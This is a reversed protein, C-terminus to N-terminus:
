RRSPRWMRRCSRTLPRCPSSRANLPDRAFDFGLVKGADPQDALVQSAPVAHPALFLPARDHTSKQQEPREIPVTRPLQADQVAEPRAGRQPAQQSRVAAAGVLFLVVSAMGVM